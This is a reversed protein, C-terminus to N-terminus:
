RGLRSRPLVPRAGLRGRGLVRARGARLRQAPLGPLRDADDRAVHHDSRDEGAHLGRRHRRARGRRPDRHHALRAAPGSSAARPRSCRVRWRDPDGDCRAPRPPLHRPLRRGSGQRRNPQDARKRFFGGANVKARQGQVLVMYKAAGRVEVDYDPAGRDFASTNLLLEGHSPTSIGVSQAGAMSGWGLLLMHCAGSFTRARRVSQHARM